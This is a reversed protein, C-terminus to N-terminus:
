DLSYKNKYNEYLKPNQKSKYLIFNGCVLMDLKTGMFCKFADEISISKIIKAPDDKAGVVVFDNMMVAFREVGHGEAIFKNEANLAHVLLIDVDGDRGMRLAKGTGVAIVHVKYSSDKEFKPLLYNLLGSNETSSTTALRILKNKESRNDASALQNSLLFSLLILLTIKSTNKIIYFLSM